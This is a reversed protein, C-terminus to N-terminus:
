SRSGVAWVPVRKLAFPASNRSEGPRCVYVPIHSGAGDLHGKLEKVLGPSDFSLCLTGGAGVARLLHAARLVVLSPPFSILLPRQSSALLLRPKGGDSPVALPGQLTVPSQAEGYRSISTRSISASAPINYSSTQKPVLAVM